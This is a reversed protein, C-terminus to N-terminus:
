SLLMKFGTRPILVKWLWSSIGAASKLYWQMFVIPQM